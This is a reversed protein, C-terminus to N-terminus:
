IGMMSNRRPVPVEVAERDAALTAARSLSSAAAEIFLKSDRMLQGIPVILAICRLNEM